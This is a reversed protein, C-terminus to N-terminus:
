VVSKRDAMVLGDAAGEDLKRLRTDVNGRIGTIHLDPRLQLLQYARRKSGTAIVAGQPLEWLSSAGRLILADRPDERPLTRCFCLGPAPESPMDKMSHVALDIGGGLLEQEIERVFVGKGGIQDLAKDQVKDGTTHIVTLECAFGPNRDRLRQAVSETQTLALKSGRTGLRIKM